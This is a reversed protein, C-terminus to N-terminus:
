ELQIIEKRLLGKEYLDNALTNVDPYFNRAWFLDINSESEKWRNEFEERTGFKKTFDEVTAYGCCKLHFPSDPPYSFYKSNYLEEGTPNLPAKVDRDLWTKFKVGMENHNILEPVSSNMLDEDTDCPVSLPYLGDVKCGDQQQFDYIKGYVKKM